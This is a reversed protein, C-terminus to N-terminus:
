RPRDPTTCQSESISSPPTELLYRRMDRGKRVAEAGAINYCHTLNGNEGHLVEECTCPWPRFTRVARENLLEMTTMFSSISGYAVNRANMLACADEVLGHSHIQIRKEAHRDLLEHICPHHWSPETIIRLTKFGHKAILFDVFSCPAFLRKSSRNRRFGVIDGSRLHITLGSFPSKAELRCAHRASANMLPKVYTLMVRQQDEWRVGKCFFRPNGLFNGFIPCDCSARTQWVPNAQVLIFEPLRLLPVQLQSGRPLVVTSLGKLEAVILANMIQLLNNGVRGKWSSIKVQDEALATHYKCGM